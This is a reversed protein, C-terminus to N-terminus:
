GQSDASRCETVHEHRKKLGGRTHYRVHSFSLPCRNKFFIARPVRGVRGAKERAGAGRPGHVFIVYVKCYARVRLSRWHLTYATGFAGFFFTSCLVIDPPGGMVSRLSGVTSSYRSRVTGM